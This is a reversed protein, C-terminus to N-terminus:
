AVETKWYLGKIYFKEEVNFLQGLKLVENDGCSAKMIFTFRLVESISVEYEINVEYLCFFLQFLKHRYKFGSKDM